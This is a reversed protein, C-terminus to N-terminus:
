RCPLLGDWCGIRPWTRVSRDGEGLLSKIKYRGAFVSGRALETEAPASEAVEGM